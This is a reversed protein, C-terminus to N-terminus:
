RADSNNQYKTFIIPMGSDRATRVVGSSRSSLGEFEQYHEELTEVYSRYGRVADLVLLVASKSYARDLALQTSESQGQFTTMCVVGNACDPLLVGISEDGVSSTLVEELEGFGKPAGQVFVEVAPELLASPFAHTGLEPSYADVAQVAYEPQEWEACTSSFKRMATLPYARTMASCIGISILITREVLGM